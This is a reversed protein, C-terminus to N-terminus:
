QYQLYYTQKDKDTLKYVSMISANEVMVSFFEKEFYYKKQLYRYQGIFYTAEKFPVIKIRDRQKKSLYDVNIEQPHHEPYISIVASTDNNLIYELADKSSVGYYDLEFNDKIEKMDNGAFANFYVYEYPHLRIMMVLNIGALLILGVIMFEKKRVWKYIVIVGYLAVMIFAPYIFFVHRWADYVASKLIIITAPILISCIFVLQQAKEYFFFSRPAKGLNYAIYSIGLLFLVLYPIPTTIGIWVPLYHWPLKTSYLYDGKYLVIGAWPFKSMEAFANAFHHVPGEWLVPWFAITFLVTCVVFLIFEKFYWKATDKNRFVCLTDTCFFLVSIAPLIIGMIRIDIAFASVIGFLIANKYTPKEHFILLAYMGFIFFSLFPLDKSNYFSDAFIRPSLVIFICGMLAIKWSKFCYKCLFYFCIVSAFFTLFTIVHRMLYVDHTDKLHLIKEFIVLLIEFAPGHYKESSSLLAERKLDPHLMYTFALEGNAKWQMKEDWNLGYDKIIILAVSFFLVFFGIVIQKHSTEIRQFFKTNM